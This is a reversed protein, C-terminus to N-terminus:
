QVVSGAVAAFGDAKRANAAIPLENVRSNVRARARIALTRRAEVASTTMLAPDDIIPRIGPNSVGTPNQQKSWGM